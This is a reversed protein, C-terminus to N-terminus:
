SLLEGDPVAESEVQVSNHQLWSSFREESWEGSALRATAIVADPQEAKLLWGNEYLFTAGVVFATRKNGDFFPKGVAFGSAYAAALDHVSSEPREAQVSEPRQLISQLRSEEEIGSRGGHRALQMEQIARVTKPLLWRPSNM